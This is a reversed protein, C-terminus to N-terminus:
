RNWFPRNLDAWVPDLSWQSNWSAVCIVDLCRWHLASASRRGPLLLLEKVKFPHYDFGLWITSHFLGLSWRLWIIDRIDSYITCIGWLKPFLTGYTAWKAISSVVRHTKITVRQCVMSIIPCLVTIIINRCLKKEQPTICLQLMDGISLKVANKLGSM